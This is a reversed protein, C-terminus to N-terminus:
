FIKKIISECDLGYKKQIESVSGHEIFEDPLGIIRIRDSSLGNAQAYEFMASGLGSIYTVDEVVYTNKGSSLIKTLMEKDLPKIFRANYINIPLNKKTIHNYLRTFNDGYAILNVSGQNDYEVWDPRDINTISSTNLM